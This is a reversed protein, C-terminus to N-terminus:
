DTPVPDTGEFYIDTATASGNPVNYNTWLLGDGTIIYISSLTEKLEWEDTDANYDYRVGPGNAKMCTPYQTTPYWYPVVSFAYMRKNPLMFIYPYEATLGFPIRPLRVGNYLMFLYYKGEAVSSINVPINVVYASGDGGGGGGSVAAVKVDETVFKGAVVAIQETPGPIVTKGQQVSLQRTASKDGATAIILGNEDVTIEPAAQEGGGEIARVMDPYDSFVDGPNQGKEILAAKLDAKTQKLRNLKDTTAM